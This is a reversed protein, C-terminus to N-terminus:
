HVRQFIILRSPQRDGNPQMLEHGSRSALKLRPQACPAVQQRQQMLGIIIRITSPIIFGSTITTTATIMAASFSRGHGAVTARTTPIKATM